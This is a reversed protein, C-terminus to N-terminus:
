GRSSPLRDKYPFFLSALLFLLYGNLELWEELIEAPEGFSREVAEAIGSAFLVAAAVLYFGCRPALLVRMAAPVVRRRKLLYLAFAAFIAIIVVNQGAGYTPWALWDPAGTNRLEVERVCCALYMAALGLLIVRGERREGRAQWLSLVFAVLVVLAQLNEIPGDEDFWHHTEFFGALFAALFALDVIFLALALPWYGRAAPM